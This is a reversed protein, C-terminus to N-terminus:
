TASGYACVPSQANFIKLFQHSFPIPSVSVTSTSICPAKLATLGHVSINGSEREVVADAAARNNYGGILIVNPVAWHTFFRYWHTM